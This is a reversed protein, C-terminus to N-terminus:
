LVDIKTITGGHREIIRAIAILDNIAIGENRSVKAATREFRIALCTYGPDPQDEVRHIGRIGAYKSFRIKSLEATINVVKADDLNILIIHHFSEM